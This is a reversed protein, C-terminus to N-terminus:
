NNAKFSNKPCNRKLHGIEKCVHCWREDGSMRMSNAELKFEHKNKIPDTMDLIYPHAL